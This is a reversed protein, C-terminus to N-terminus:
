EEMELVAPPSADAPAATNNGRADTAPTAPTEARAPRAPSIVSPLASAAALKPRPRPLPPPAAAAPPQPALAGSVTESASPLDGGTSPLPDAEPDIAVLGPPRAYPTPLANGALEPAPLAPHVRLIRGSWASVVVQVEYGAREVARLRYTRGHRFPPSIPVLGASRVIAAVEAAPLVVVQSPLVPGRVYYPPLPQAKAASMALGAALLSM